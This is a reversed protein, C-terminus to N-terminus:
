AVKRTKAKKKPIQHVPELTERVLFTPSHSDTRYTKLDEKAAKLSYHLQGGIIEFDRGSAKRCKACSCGVSYTVENRLKKM